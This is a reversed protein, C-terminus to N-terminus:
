PNVIVTGTFNPYSSVPHLKCHYAYTGPATFTFDFSAGSSTGGGGYGGGGSPADLPGSDWLPADSVTTHASPGQNIWHVTTGAKVTVTQPAFSFDQITVTMSGAPPVPVDQGGNGLPTSSDGGCAILSSVLVLLVRHNSYM